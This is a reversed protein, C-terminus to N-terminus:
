HGNLSGGLSDTHGAAWNMIDGTSFFKGTSVELAITQVSKDKKDWNEIPLQTCINIGNFWHRTSSCKYGDKKQASGKDRKYTSYNSEKSWRHYTDKELYGDRTAWYCNTESGKKMNVWKKDMWYGSALKYAGNNATWVVGCFRKDGAFVDLSLLFLVLFFMINKRYSGKM